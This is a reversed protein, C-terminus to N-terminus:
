SRFHAALRELGEDISVAPTWRLAERTRRQDFWHATSLQEALFRTIPPQADGSGKRRHRLSWVREVVDGAAVALAAPVHRTPRPVGAAACFDGFIEGVPRPEGNSVVFAEGHVEPARDLAAVLADRANDVYTTDVLAAGAGLLPLRGARGRDVVREVFQTDGPGWVIHPRVAVVALPVEGTGDAALAELESQAKTRAYPGRATQPDAPGAPAGVLSSGAHAVSPSSVQVLRQVGHAACAALVNRTGVVNARVYDAELGVVNVKAALHVVADQGAAARDVVAADAVDGLVERFGLGAARRQLVTVEDGREALSRAVRGGLLGSAGTVLVRV